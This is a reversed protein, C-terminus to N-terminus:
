VNFYKYNFIQHVVKNNDNLVSLCLKQYSILLQVRINQVNVLRNQMLNALIFVKNRTNERLM